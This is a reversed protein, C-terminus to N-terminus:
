PYSWQSRVSAGGILDSVTVNLRHHKSAYYLVLIIQGLSSHRFNVLTTDRRVFIDVWENCVTCVSAECGDAQLMETSYMM